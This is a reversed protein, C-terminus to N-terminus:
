TCTSKCTSTVEQYFSQDAVLLLSCSRCQARPETSPGVTDTVAQARRVEERRRRRRRRSGTRWAGGHHSLLKFKEYFRRCHEVFIPQAIVKCFQLAAIQIICCQLRYHKRLRAWKGEKYLKYARSKREKM